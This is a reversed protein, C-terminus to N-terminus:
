HIHYRKLGIVSYLCSPTIEVMTLFLIDVVLAQTALIDVLSALIVVMTEMVLQLTHIVMAEMAETAEMVTTPLHTVEMVMVTVVLPLINRTPLLMKLKLRHLVVMQTTLSVLQQLQLRLQLSLRLLLLQLPLLPRDWGHHFLTLDGLLLNGM